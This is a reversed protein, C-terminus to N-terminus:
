IKDDSGLRERLENSSVRDKVKIGCMWRVMRMGAQQLAVENKEQLGPRVETRCVVECV